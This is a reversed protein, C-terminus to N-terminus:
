WRSEVYNERCKILVNLLTVGQFDFAPDTPPKCQYSQSACQLYAAMGAAAKAQLEAYSYPNYVVIQNNSGDLMSLTGSCWFAHDQWTEAARAPPIVLSADGCACFAIDQITHEPPNCQSTFQFVRTVHKPPFFLLSTNPRSFCSHRTQAPFVPAVHKRPFFM